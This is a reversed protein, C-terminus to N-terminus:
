SGAPAPPPRLEVGAYVDRLPVRAPITAFVLEADPGDFAVRGWAGDAQRVFREVLAEDQSVLVYEAVSPVQQYHRFKTTRDYRETSESLVEIVVRPNLLTDREGDEFEPTGCVVVLDPYCYLGTASVKVRQDSSLTQCPGGLLQGGVRIVLNEKIRNHPYRAGAMAFLEGDYFESKFAAARERALYEAATLRAPKRVATM